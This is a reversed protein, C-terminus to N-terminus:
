HHPLSLRDPHPTKPLEGHVKKYADLLDKVPVGAIRLEEIPGHPIEAGKFCSGSIITGAFSIDNFDCSGLNVNRFTCGSLNVDDFVSGSLDVNTFRSKQISQGKVDLPQTRNEKKNGSAIPPRTGSATPTQDTKPQFLKTDDLTGAFIDIEETKDGKWFVPTGCRPCFNWVGHCDCKEGSSARFELPQGATITFKARQVTVYPVQLAGAARQCGRCDCYTCRIIPGVAEYRIEGCHCQGIFKTETPQQKPTDMKKLQEEQSFAVTAILLTILIAGKIKRMMKGKKALEIIQRLNGFRFTLTPSGWRGYNERLTFGTHIFPLIACSLSCTLPDRFSALMPETQLGM